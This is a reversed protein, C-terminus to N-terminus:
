LTHTTGERQPVGTPSINVEVAEFTPERSIRRSKSKEREREPVGNPATDQNAGFTVTYRSEITALSVRAQVIEAVGRNPEHNTRLGVRHPPRCPRKTSFLTKLIRFRSKLCRMIWGVRTRFGNWGIRFGESAGSRVDSCGLKLHENDLTTRSWFPVAFMVLEFVILVIQQVLFPGCASIVAVQNSTQYVLQLSSSSEPHLFLVDGVMPWVLFFVPM